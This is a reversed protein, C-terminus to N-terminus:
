FGQGLHVGHYKVLGAGQRFAREAVAADAVGGHFFFFNQFIGSQRLDCGGMGDALAQKGGPAALSVPAPHRINPLDAALADGRHHVASGHSRAVPPEHRTQANVSRRVLGDAGRHMHSHIAAIGTGDADAISQLGRRQFGHVSQFLGADTAGYHEGAVIGGRSGGNGLRQTNRFKM